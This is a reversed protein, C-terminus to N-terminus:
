GFVNRDDALWDWRQSHIGKGGGDGGKLFFHILYKQNVTSIIM